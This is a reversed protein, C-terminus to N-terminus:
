QAEAPTEPQAAATVAPMNAQHQQDSAQTATAHEQDMAKLGVDHAMDAMALRDASARAGDQAKTEIEGLALKVANNERNKQLDADIKPQQTALKMNAEQLAALLQKIQQQYQQIQQGMQQPSVEGDTPPAIMDAVGEIEPNGHGLIRIVKAMFATNQVLAPNIKVLEILMGMAENDRTHEKPGVLVQCTYQGLALNNKKGKKGTKPDIGDTGFEANITVLEHQSDPKVITVVQQDTMIKPFIICMQQYIIAKTRHLNDAYSFNATSSESRLQEIAKGSQDNKQQGLSPDYISTEAKIQDSFWQGLQILWQIPAEWMNRQPMPLLHQQGQEDTAFKPHVEMYAYVESNVSDWKDDQFQGEYGLYPSKPLLGTLEAATTAVYNLARNSDIAGSILSLRYLKGDIYIEPGLVPFLPILTGPWETDDQAEMADVIYKKITKKPSPREIPKGKYDLKPTAGPPLNEDDLFWMPASDGVTYLRSMRDTEEVMYFECVLFPGRWRGYGDRAGTWDIMTQTDESGIGFADKLWGQAIQVGGPQLVKRDKGLARIYDERGYAKIKGAWGADQRNAMRASPDFFVVSPDEVSDIRLRQTDDRENAYETCLEIVGYGSIASYKVATSDAVEAMSRYEVERILGEIIDPDPADENSGLPLVQPGPPNQRIDGEVQDVAPKCRNVTVIPRGQDKRKQVEADRWMLEGGVYARLREKEADRVHVNAKRFRDYAARVFAPIQKKPISAM